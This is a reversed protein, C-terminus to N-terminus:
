ENLQGVKVKAARIVRGNLEYGRQIVGLVINDEKKDDTEIIEVSTHFNHDFKQGIPDIQKLGNNELTTLLQTYIYEVGIRWQKDVKEWADKDSFAMEFSDIVPFLEEMIEGKAFSFSQKAREENDKKANVFDARSRQWGLLNDKNEKLCKNLKERLKKLKDESSKEDEFIIDDNYADDTIEDINKEKKTRPSM